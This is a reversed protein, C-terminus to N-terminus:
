IIPQLIFLFIIQKKLEIFNKLVYLGYVFNCM